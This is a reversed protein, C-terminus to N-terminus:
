KEHFVRLTSISQDPCGPLKVLAKKALTAADYIGVDCETGGTYIESGDTSLNVDYFTHDLPVRKELRHGPVDISTLTTYVGYAHKRDPSLVTAFILASFPEFDEYSLEGSKLDLSMLATTPVTEGGKKLDSYVPSTWVGTPETVPWFALLDPQGHEPMNWQQIGRTGLLKGTKVDFEDLNFGVAYFSRGSPRMLLMHVRRPAPFTRVPRAELGANTRYVAFRTDEAVYEDPLLKTPMEHVILEKGDPTLVMSFFSKVREDPTSLVARFVERGSAIDLGVIREMRDVLVYVTKHDPSIIVAGVIGNAGPIRLDSRV